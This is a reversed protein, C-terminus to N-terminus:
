VDAPLGFQARLDTPVLDVYEPHRAIYGRVFPCFPMVALGDDRAASLATRALASALGRGEFRQDISTHVFSIVRPRRHYETFGAVEGDVRIEFRSRDPVDVVVGDTARTESM